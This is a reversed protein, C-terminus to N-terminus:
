KQSDGLSRYLESIPKNLVPHVFSKDLDMFPRLVFYREQISPHPIVLSKDKYILDNYFLIDIDVERPGYRVRPKRGVIIEINKVFKLLEKPCLGTYGRLVTNLFKNQKKYYLPETEYYKATTIDSIKQKLLETADEINKKRNGLNSGLGLYVKNM